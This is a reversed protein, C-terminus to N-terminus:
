IHDFSNTSRNSKPDGSDASAIDHSKNSPTGGSVTNHALGNGRYDSPGWYFSAETSLETVHSNQRNEFQDSNPQLWSMMSEVSKFNNGKEQLAWNNIVSNLSMIGNRIQVRIVNDEAM